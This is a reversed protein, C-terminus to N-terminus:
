KRSLACVRLDHQLLLRTGFPRNHTVLQISQQCARRHVRALRHLHALEAHEIHGSIQVTYMNCVQLVCVQTNGRMVFRGFMAHFIRNNEQRENKTSGREQGDTRTQRNQRRIGDTSLPSGQKPCVTLPVSIGSFGARSRTLTHDVTPRHRIRKNTQKNKNRTRHSERSVAQPCGRWEYGSGLVLPSGGVGHTSLLILGLPEFVSPFRL